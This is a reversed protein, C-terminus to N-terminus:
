IEIKLFLIKLLNITESKSINHIICCYDFNKVAIIAIDSINVSLITLNHCGNCVYDQFKFLHNFFFHHCIVCKRSKNRKTPDIRKSTDIKNYHLM